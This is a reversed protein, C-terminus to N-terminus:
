DNELSAPCNWRVIRKSTEQILDRMKQVSNQQAVDDQERIALPVNKVGHLDSVKIRGDYRRAHSVLINSFIKRESNHFCQTKTKPKWHQQWTSAKQNSNRWIYEYIKNRKRSAKLITKKDKTNQFKFTIHRPMPLKEKLTIPGKLRYTQYCTSGEM